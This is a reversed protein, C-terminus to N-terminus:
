IIESVVFKIKDNNFIYYDDIHQEITKDVILFGIYKSYKPSDVISTVKGIEENKYFVPLYSYFIPRLPSEYNFEVRYISKKFGIKKQELLASKGIFDYEADLNCFKGLGCDYPLDM